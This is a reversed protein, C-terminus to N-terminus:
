ENNDGVGALVQSEKIMPGLRNPNVYTAKFFKSAHEDLDAVELDLQQRLVQGLRITEQQLAAANWKYGSRPCSTDPNTAFQPAVENAWYKDHWDFDAVNVYDFKDRALNTLFCGLRTGYMAWLGNQTETGVSMWVLLRQYNKYHVKARLARSDVTQGDALTLKVGERFGARYAQYPTANNHVDSYVNNMQHYNIDWCFDVQSSPNSSSAAEHTQMQEVVKKPWCKIGGNGYVLGNVVNKGAWSIVDHPGFRNTDLAINFFDDRVINDADVTIFRHTEALAAAAKHCADSGKVGHSRKAWPAKTLLDAYNEDANPEDYSMFVIDYETIPVIMKIKQSTLRSLVTTMYSELM